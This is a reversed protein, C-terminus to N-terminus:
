IPRLHQNSPKRRGLYHPRCPEGRAPCPLRELESAFTAGFCWHVRTRNTSSPCRRKQALDSPISRWIQLERGSQKAQSLCFYSPAQATCIRPEIPESASTAM